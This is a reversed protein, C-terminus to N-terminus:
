PKAEDNPPVPAPIPRPGRAVATRVEPASDDALGRIVEPPTSPNRAVGFRVWLDPNTALTRLVMAPTSPNLALARLVPPDAVEALAELSATPTSPNAAVSRRVPASLSGALMSLAAAPTDRRAAVAAHVSRLDERLWQRWGGAASDLRPDDRRAIEALVDAPTAPNDVLDLLTWRSSDALARTALERLEGPSADSARARRDAEGARLVWFALSAVVVLLGLVLGLRLASGSARWLRSLAWGAVGTVLAVVLVVVPVGYLAIVATSSSSSLIRGVLALTVALGAAFATALGDALPISIRRPMPGATKTPALLLRRFGWYSVVGLGLAVFLLGNM